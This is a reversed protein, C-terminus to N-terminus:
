CFDASYVKWGFERFEVEENSSSDEVVSPFLGEVHYTTTQNKRGEKMHLGKRTRKEKKKKKKALFDLGHANPQNHAIYIDEEWRDALKHKGDFALVRVVHIIAWHIRSYYM